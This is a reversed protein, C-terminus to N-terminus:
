ASRLWRESCRTQTTWYSSSGILRRITGSSVSATSGFQYFRRCSRISRGGWSYSPPANVPLVIDAYLDYLRHISFAETPSFTDAPSDVLMQLVLPRRVREMQIHPTSTLYDHMVQAQEPPLKKLAEEVQALECAQLEVIQFSKIGLETRRSSRGIQALFNDPTASLSRRTAVAVRCGSRFLSSLRQLNPCPDRVDVSLNAEDFTDILVIVDAQATELRDKFQRASTPSIRGLVKAVASVADSQDLWPALDAYMVLFPFLDRKLASGAARRLLESKGSGFEGLVVLLNNEPSQVFRHVVQVADSVDRPGQSSSILACPVKLRPLRHLFQDRRSARELLDRSVDRLDLLPALDGPSPPRGVEEERVTRMYSLYDRQLDLGLSSFESAMARQLADLFLRREIPRQAIGNGSLRRQTGGVSAHYGRDVMRAALTGKKVAVPPRDAPWPHERAALTSRLIALDADVAVSIQADLTDEDKWPSTAASM